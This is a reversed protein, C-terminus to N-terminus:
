ASIDILFGLEPLTALANDSVGISVEQISILATIDAIFHKIKM